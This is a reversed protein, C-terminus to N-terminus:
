DGEVPRKAILHMLPEFIDPYSGRQIMRHYNDIDEPLDIDQLLRDSQYVQVDVGADRARVAHRHFSGEGYAYKIAGPPRVFLANTGDRNRDTTLVITPHPKDGLALIAQVDAAAILPLDAPLILVADAHWSAVISTARMLANNLEPSGSEQITKANYERALALARTDRSIVLTGAVDPVQQVVGLVHRLMTEAFHQREEPTLVKSLRSKALRLPKVPIIVWVSM